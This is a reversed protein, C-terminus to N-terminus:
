MGGHHPRKRILLLFYPAGILTALLGAPIQNPFLLWRGMWDAVAMIVAGMLLSALLHAGAKRFGVMLAMQPALLGVFSMPGVIVTASGTLAASLLLLLLRARRLNIGAAQSAEPGLPLIDLWRVACFALTLLVAACGAALEAERPGALFTSGALWRLVAFMRIDGSALLAAVVAQVGSGLAIGTILMPYPAFSYRRALVMLVGISALAGGAAAALPMLPGYSPLSLVLVTIGVTAGAGVGLVEPSAMENGTLRQLLVGAAALMMGGAVAAVMRPGRWYSLAAAESWGSWTMGGAGRGLFLSVIMILALLLMGVLLWRRPRSLRGRGRFAQPAMPAAARAHPVLWVLLPAGLVATMAGAPVQAGEGSFWQIAQDVGCLLIAGIVAALLLRARVTRAGCLRALTPAALGVFGIIGVSSVVLTSAALAIGILLLRVSGPSLGRAAAFGDDLELLRLPRAMLGAAVGSLLLAPFLRAVVSWGTQSLSGSSWILLATMSQEHFLALTAGVAGCTLSVVLGGLVVALPSLGGGAALVFVLGMAGAGGAFAIWERGWRLLDPAFFGALALALYAGASVGVTAPEALPNRLVQQFIAGTLGLMAGCLVAAALRPLLGFHFLVQALDDPAPALAARMWLAAPLHHAFNATVLGAVCLLLLTTVRSGTLLRWQPALGTPAENM